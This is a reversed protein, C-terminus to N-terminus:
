RRGEIRVTEAEYQMTLGDMAFYVDAQADTLTMEVGRARSTETPISIAKDYELDNDLRQELYNAGGPLDYVVTLTPAEGAVHGRARWQTTFQTGARILQFHAWCSLFHKETFPPQNAAFTVVRDVAYHCDQLAGVIPTGSVVSLTEIGYSTSLTWFWDGAADKWRAGPITAPGLDDWTVVNDAVNTITNAWFDVNVRDGTVPYVDSALATSALRATNNSPVDLYMLYGFYNPMRLLGSVSAGYGGCHTPVLFDSTVGESSMTNPIATWTAWAGTEVHYVYCCGPVPSEGEVGSSGFVVIAERESASCFPTGLTQEVQTANYSPTFSRVDTEIASDIRSVGGSGIAMIGNRSWAFVTDRCKAAWTSCRATNAAEDATDIMRFTGDVLQITISDETDGSGYACYLGDPKLIWLRDITAFIRSIPQSADGVIAFNGLPVSEPQNIKSWWLTAVSDRNAPASENYTRGVPTTFAAPKSSTIAIRPLAYFSMTDPSAVIPMNGYSGDYEVTVTIGINPDAGTQSYMRAIPSWETTMSDNYQDIFVQEVTGFDINDVTTPQVRMVGLSGGHASTSGDPDNLTSSGVTVYPAYVRYSTENADTWAIWDWAVIDLNTQTATADRDLTITGAGSDFGVIFGYLGVANPSTPAANPIGADYGTVLQGISLYPFVGAQVGTIIPSEDIWDVTTGTSRVSLLTESKDSDVVPGVRKVTTSQRWGADGGGYFLKGQYLALDRSTRLRYNARTGGQQSSNTYLAPGGFEDAAAYDDFAILENPGTCVQSYRLIMEDGPDGGATGETPTRYIRLEDGSRVMGSLDIGITVNAATAGRNQVVYRDSPAGEIPVRTRNETEIWRVITFRYATTENVGLFGSGGANYGVYYPAVRAAGPMRMFAGHGVEVNDSPEQDSQDLCRLGNPFTWICRGDALESFVRVEATNYEGGMTILPFADTERAISILYDTDTSGFATVTDSDWERSHLPVTDIGFGALGYVAENGVFSLAARPEILGESRFVVNQADVLGGDGAVLRSPDTVLGRPVIRM